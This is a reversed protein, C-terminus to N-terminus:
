RIAPPNARRIMRAFDAPDPIRRLNFVFAYLAAVEPHHPRGRLREVMAPILTLFLAKAPDKEPGQPKLKM